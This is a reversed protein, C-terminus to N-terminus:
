LEDFNINDPVFTSEDICTSSAMKQLKKPSERSSSASSGIQGRACRGEDLAREPSPSGSRNDGYEDAADDCAHADKLALARPVNTLAPQKRKPSERITPQKNELSLQPPMEIALTVARYTPPALPAVRTWCAPPNIPKAGKLSINARHESFNYQIDIDAPSAASLGFDVLPVRAGLFRHEVYLQDDVGAVVRYYGDARWDPPLKLDKCVAGYKKYVDCMAHEFTAVQAESRTTEFLQKWPQVGTAFELLEALFERNQQRKGHKTHAQLMPEALAIPELKSLWSKLYVLPMNEVKNFNKHPVSPAAAPAPASTEERVQGEDPDPEAVQVPKSPAPSPGSSMAKDDDETWLSMQVLWDRLDPLVEPKGKMLSTVKVRIGRYKMELSRRQLDAARQEHTKKPSM